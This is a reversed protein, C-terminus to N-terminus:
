AGVRIPIVSLSRLGFTGTNASVKYKAVLASLAAVTQTRVSMSFTTGVNTTSIGAARDADIAATSGIDYSMYDAENANSNLHSVFATVRYEGAIPVTVTPGATALATYSTSTTTEFDDVESWLASGGVYEWPYAVSAKSRYRLHWVVGNTADAVYYVETGEGAGAPLFTVLPIRVATQPISGDAYSGFTSSSNLIDRVREDVQAETLAVSNQPMTKYGWTM